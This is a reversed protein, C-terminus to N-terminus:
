THVLLRLLSMHSTYVYSIAGSINPFPFCILSTGLTKGVKELSVSYKM